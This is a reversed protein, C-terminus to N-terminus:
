RKAPELRVNRGRERWGRGVAPFVLKPHRHTKWFQRLRTLMMAPLPVYRDKGGGVERIHIRSQAAHIDRVCLGAAEDGAARLCLDVLIVRFRPEHVAALLRRVEERSLVNPLKQRDPCRVIAFLKWDRRWPCGQLVNAAAAVAIRMSSPAYKKQEKLYLLYARGEAEELVSPDKGSHSALKRVYRVYEERTRGSLSRLTLHEEFRVISSYSPVHRNEKM